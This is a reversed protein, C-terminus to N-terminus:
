SARCCPLQFFSATSQKVKLTRTTTGSEASKGLMLLYNIPFASALDLVFWGTVYNWTITKLDVVQLGSEDLYATNFQLLLDIVFYADVCVDFWFRWDGVGLETLDYGVRTTVTFAVWILLVMQTSDWTVSFMSEPNRIHFPVEVVRVPGDFSLERPDVEGVFSKRMKRLRMDTSKRHQSQSQLSRVLQKFEDLSIEDNGDTDFAIMQKRIEEFSENIGLAKLASRLERFDMDGNGSYDFREFIDTVLEDSSDGFTADARGVSTQAQMMMREVALNVKAQPAARMSEKDFTTQRVSRQPVRKAAAQLEGSVRGFTVVLRVSKQWRKRAASPGGVTANSAVVGAEPSRVDPEQDLEETGAAQTSILPTQVSPSLSATVPGTRTHHSPRTDMSGADTNMAVDPLLQQEEKKCSKFAYASPGKSGAHMAAATAVDHLLKNLLEPPSRAKQEAVVAQAMALPTRSGLLTFLRLFYQLRAATPSFQEGGLCVCVMTLPSSRQCIINYATLTPRVQVTSQDSQMSLARSSVGGEALAALTAHGVDDNDFLDAGYGTSDCLAAILSVVVPMRLTRALTPEKVGLENLRRQGLVESCLAFTRVVSAQPARGAAAGTTSM